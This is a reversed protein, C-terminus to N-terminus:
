LKPEEFSIETPQPTASLLTVTERPVPLHWVGKPVVFVSGAPVTVDARGDKMLLTVDLEGELVHLLEDAPHREWPGKGSWRGVFVGSDNCDALKPFAADADAGTTGEGIRLVSAVRLADEINMAQM